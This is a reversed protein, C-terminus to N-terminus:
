WGEFDPLSELQDETMEVLEITIKDGVEAGDFEGDILTDVNRYTCNNGPYDSRTVRYARVKKDNMGSDCM